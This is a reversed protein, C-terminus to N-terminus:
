YIEFNASRIRDASIDNDDDEVAIKSSQEVGNTALTRATWM